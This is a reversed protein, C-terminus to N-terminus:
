ISYSAWGVPLRPEGISGAARNCFFGCRHQSGEALGLQVVRFSWRRCCNWWGGSLFYTSNMLDHSFCPFIIPFGNFIKLKCQRIIRWSPISWSRICKHEYEMMKREPFPQQDGSLLFLCCDWLSMEWNLRWLLISQKMRQTDLTVRSTVLM